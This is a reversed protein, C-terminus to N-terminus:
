SRLRKYGRSARQAKELRGLGSGSGAEIPYARGGAARMPVGAAPAIGPAVGAPPAVPPAGQHLGVPRAPMAPLARAPMPAPAAGAGQPAIIINVNTGKKARGGGKRALRGGTPRTGDNIVARSVSGGTKKAIKMGPYKEHVKREVEAHVPKGSSRALADRAHSENEIPYSRDPGAFNKAKIHKRAAATLKGGEARAVPATAVPRRMMGLKQQPTLAGGILKHVREAMAETRGGRKFGGVHKTGERDENASKVNRNILSNPTVASGGSARRTRDARPAAPTGDVTGGRRFQRRSLVRPGTQVDGDLAGAPAYGSADVRAHPDSRALREAKDKAAARAKESTESM